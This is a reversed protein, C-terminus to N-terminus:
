RDNKRDNVWQTRREAESKFWLIADCFSINFSEGDWTSIDGLFWNSTYFYLDTTFQSILTTEKKESKSIYKEKLSNSIEKSEAPPLLDLWLSVLMLKGEYFGLYLDVKKDKLVVEEPIQINEIVVSTKGSYKSLTYGREKIISRVEEENMGPTFGSFGNFDESFLATSIFFITILLFIKKM